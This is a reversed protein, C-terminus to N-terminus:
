SEKLRRHATNSQWDRICFGAMIEYVRLSTTMAEGHGDWWVQAGSKERGGSCFSARCWPDLVM